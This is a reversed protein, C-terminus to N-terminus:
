EIKIYIMVFILYINIENYNLKETPGYISWGIMPGTSFTEAFGISYKMGVINLM